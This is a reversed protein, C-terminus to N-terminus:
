CWGAIEADTLPRELKSYEDKAAQLIHDMRVPSGEDAALFAANLAISRINGGAVNLRSLKTYDLGDLPTECPFIRRWIDRRLNEDPFTFSVIFRLRRLFSADLASKMNTTLIALGRYSEMRQLLYSVEINAYRDHSDHVESRKGFLADAEDFLLISGGGEAADFVRALNKETEGIYKSVVSSLDIRYLDMGLDGALVEAAMTKGTGSAGAFLASIGLGRSGKSSFGWAGYVKARQRVHVSIRQLMRRKDEPLVIDDWTAMPDIRQALGNLKPRSVTICADRLSHASLHVSPARTIPRTLIDICAARISRTSMDFESTMGAARMATEPGLPMLLAEWLNRQEDQTPNKVEFYVTPRSKIPRNTQSSIMLPFASRGILRIAGSPTQPGDVSEDWDILLVSKSLVAEREWLRLIEDIEEPESPILSSDLRCLGMGLSACAMAAVDIRDGADGGCVQVAANPMGQDQHSWLMSIRQALSSQSPPAPGQANVLEMIPSLRPDLYHLGTLCHLIMEDIKLPSTTLSLGNGLYILQWRRLPSDPILASWHADPFAALAVGFTPYVKAPDRHIASCLHALSADLEFGACLLLLSREFSSLAFSDSILDIAAPRPLEQKKDEIASKLEEIRIEDHEEQLAHELRAKILDISASLYRQNAGQWDEDYGKM